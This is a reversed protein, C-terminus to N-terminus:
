SLGSTSSVSDVPHKSSVLFHLAGSTALLPQQKACLVRYIDASGYSPQFDPHGSNIHHAYDAGQKLHPNVSRRFDPSAWIQIGYPVGPVGPESM